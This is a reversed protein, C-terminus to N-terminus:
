RSSASVPMITLPLPEEPMGGISVATRSTFNFTMLALLMSALEAASFEKLLRAAVDPNVAAPFGLWCDALEIALKERETLATDRYGADVMQARAESLGDQRAAEYRVAKCYVCDVTRANRLRIIELLTPSVLSDRWVAANLAIIEELTEAVTGLASDRIPNGTRTGSAAARPKASM